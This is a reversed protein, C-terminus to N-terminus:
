GPRPRCTGTARSRFLVEPDQLPDDAAAAPPEGGIFSRDAIEGPTLIEVDFPQVEGGASDITQQLDVPLPPDIRQLALIFEEGAETISKGRRHALLVVVQFRADFPITRPRPRGAGLPGRDLHAALVPNRIVPGPSM